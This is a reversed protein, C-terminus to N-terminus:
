NNFYDEISEFDHECLINPYEVKWKEWEAQTLGMSKILSIINEEIKGINFGILQANALDLQTLTKM